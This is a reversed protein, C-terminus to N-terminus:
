QECCDGSTGNYNTLSPVPQLCVVLVAIFHVLTGSVEPPENGRRGVWERSQIIKFESSINRGVRWPCECLKQNDHLFVNRVRGQHEKSSNPILLLIRLDMMLTPFWLFLFSQYYRAHVVGLWGCSCFPLGALDRCMLVGTCRGVGEGRWCVCM